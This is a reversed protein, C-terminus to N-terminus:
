NESAREVHDIVLMEVPGKQSELRLGLQQPLATFISLGNTDVPQPADSAEPPLGMAEAGAQGPERTWHLEFDYAGKLETKDIVMRGMQLSLEWALAATGSKNFSIWGRDLRGPKSEGSHPTLKSGTKAVLLAYVPMERTEHHVKLQFRDEMLARLMRGFEDRPLRGDVGETKARIDWRASNIWDPGGSVQFSQVGYARMLLMKLTVGTATLNGGPLNHFEFHRDESTNLKVAAVDFQKRSVPSQALGSTLAAAWVLVCTAPYIM